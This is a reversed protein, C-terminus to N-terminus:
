DNPGHGSPFRRIKLIGFAIIGGALATLLQPYGMMTYLSAPIVLPLPKGAIELQPPNSMLWTAIGFIFLFKAMAGLCLAIWRNRKSIIGYLVAFLGNGLSIFPIMVVFPLPLIHRVMAAVPTVMGLLVAETIGGWEVALILLANVLPGTVPQPLGLNTILLGTGIFLGIRVIAPWEFEKRWTLQEGNM